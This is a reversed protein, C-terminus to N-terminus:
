GREKRWKALVEVLHDVLQGPEYEKILAELDRIAEKPRKRYQAAIRDYKTDIFYLDIYEQETTTPARGHNGCTHCYLEVHYTHNDKAFRRNEKVDYLIATITTPQKCYPGGPISHTWGNSTHNM